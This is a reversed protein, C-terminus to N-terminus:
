GMPTSPPTTSNKPLALDRCQRQRGSCNALHRPRESQRRRSPVYLDFPIRNDNVQERLFRCRGQIVVINVIEMAEIKAVQNELCIILWTRARLHPAESRGMSARVQEM